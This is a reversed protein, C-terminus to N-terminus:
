NNCTPFDGIVVIVAKRCTEILDYQMGTDM